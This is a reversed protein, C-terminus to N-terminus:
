EGGDGREVVVQPTVVCVNDVFIAPKLVDTIVMSENAPDAGEPLDIVDANMGEVFPQGLPDDIRVGLDTLCRVLGVHSERIRDSADPNATIRRGLRWVETGLEALASRFSSHMPATGATPVPHSEARRESRRVRRRLAQKLRNKLRRTSM